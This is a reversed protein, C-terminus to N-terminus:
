TWTIVRYYLFYYASFLIYHGGYILTRSGYSTYHSAYVIYLTGYTIYHNAYLFSHTSPAMPSTTAPMSSPTPTRSKSPPEMHGKDRNLPITQSSCKITFQTAGHSHPYLADKQTEEIYEESEKKFRERLEIEEKPIIGLPYDLRWPCNNAEWATVGRELLSTSYMTNADHVNTWEKTSLPAVDLHHEEVCQVIWRYIVRKASFLLEPMKESTNSSKVTDMLHLFAKDRTIKLMGPDDWKIGYLLKFFEDGNLPNAISLYKYGRDNLREEEVKTAKDLRKKKEFDNLGLADLKAAEKSMFANFEDMGSWSNIARLNKGSKELRERSSLMQQCWLPGWEELDISTVPMTDGRSNAISLLFHGMSELYAAFDFSSILWETDDRAFRVAEHVVLRCLPIPPPLTRKKVFFQSLVDKMLGLSIQKGLHRSHKKEKAGGDQEQDSDDSEDENHDLPDEVDVNTETIETNEEINNSDENVQAEDDIFVCRRLIRGKKKLPTKLPQIHSSAEQDIAKNPVCGSRLKM